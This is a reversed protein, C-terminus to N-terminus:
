RRGARMGSAASQLIARLPADHCHLDCRQVSHRLRNRRSGCQRVKVPSDEASVPVDETLAAEWAKCTLQLAFWQRGQDLLPAPEAPPPFVAAFCRRLLNPPLAQWMVLLRRCLAHSPRLPPLSGLVHLCPQQKAFVAGLWHLARKKARYRDTLVSRCVLPVPTAKVDHHGPCAGLEMRM